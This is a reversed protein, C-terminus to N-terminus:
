SRELVKRREEYEEKDIEGKAYRTDLIEMPTPHQASQSEAPPVSRTGSSSGSNRFLYVVGVILAGLILLSFLGGGFLGYGGMVHNWGMM